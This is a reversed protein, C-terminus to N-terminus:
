ARSWTPISPGSTGSSASTPASTTFSSRRFRDNPNHGKALLEPFNARPSCGNDSTFILLTNEWLGHKELAAMVEGASWDTQMVFDAYSNLSSKAQWDPTPVIPTHPANLPLYLFFPQGAKAEAARQAIYGTAKRTFMPLVDMAEFAAHAPGKRTWQKEVTPVGQTRDNEIFVYPPMDLSASIGFYHDFGVANPGNRIPKTYDVKWGDGDGQAVGGDKLPWDMGLHWKGACATHYGNQKLMAPLTLRDPEILRPSFGGLM